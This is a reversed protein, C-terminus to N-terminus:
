VSDGSGEVYVASSLPIDIAEQEAFVGIYSSPIYDRKRQKNALVDM